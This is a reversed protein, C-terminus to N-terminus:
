SCGDPGDSIEKEKYLMDIIEDIRNTEIESVDWVFTIQPIFKIRIRKALQSRIFGRSAKLAKLTYDAPNKDHMATFYISASRLDPSTDVRTITIFGVRPDHLDKQVIMSIQVRIEENIKGIRSM